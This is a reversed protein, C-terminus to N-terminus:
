GRFGLRHYNNWMFRADAVSVKQICEDNEDLDKTEIKMKKGSKLRYNIYDEELHRKEYYSQLTHFTLAQERLGASFQDKTPIYFLVEICSIDKDDRTIVTADL